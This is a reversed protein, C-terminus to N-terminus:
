ATKYNLLQSLLSGPEIPTIGSAYLNKNSDQLHVTPTGPYVFIAPMVNRVRLLQAKKNDSIGAITSGINIEPDAIFRDVVGSQSGRADDWVLNPMMSDIQAGRM